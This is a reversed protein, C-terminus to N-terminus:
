HEKKRSAEKEMEIGEKRQTQQPTKGYLQLEQYIDQLLKCVELLKKSRKDQYSSEMKYSSRSQWERNTGRKTWSSSRSYSNRWYWLQM